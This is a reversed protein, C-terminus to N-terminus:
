HMLLAALGLGALMMVVVAAAFKVLDVAANVVTILAALAASGRPANPSEPFSVIEASM